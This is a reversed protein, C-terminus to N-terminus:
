KSSDRTIEKIQRKYREKMAMEVPSLKTQAEKVDIEFLKDELMQKRLNATTERIIIHTEAKNKEVDAAHAYRADVAFLATVIAIVSGASGLLLKGPNDKVTQMVAM